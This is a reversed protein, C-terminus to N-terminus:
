GQIRLALDQYTCVGAALAGHTVQNFVGIRGKLRYYKARQKSRLYAVRLELGGTDSPSNGYKHEALHRLTAKFSPGHWNSVPGLISGLARFLSEDQGDNWKYLNKRTKKSSTIGNITTM